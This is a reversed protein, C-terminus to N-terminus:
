QTLKLIGEKIEYQSFRHSKDLLLNKYYNLKNKYEKEKRVQPLSLAM